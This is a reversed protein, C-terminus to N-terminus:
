RRGTDEADWEGGGCRFRIRLTLLRRGLVRRCRLHVVSKRRRRASIPTGRKRVSYVRRDSDCQPRRLPALREDEERRAAGRAVRLGQQQVDLRQRLLPGHQYEQGAPVQDKGQHPVQLLVGGEAGGLVEDQGQVRLHGTLLLVPDEPRDPIVDGLHASRRPEANEASVGRRCLNCARNGVPLTRPVGKSSM